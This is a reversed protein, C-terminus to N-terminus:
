PFLFSAINTLLNDEPISVGVSGRVGLVVRALTTVNLCLEVLIFIVEPEELLLVLLHERPGHGSVYLSPLDVVLSHWEGQSILGSTQGAGISRWLLWCLRLWWVMVFLLPSFSVALIPFVQRCVSILESRIM